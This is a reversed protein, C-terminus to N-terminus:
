FPIIKGREYERHHKRCLWKVELPKSYDEHHAQVELTTGCIECPCKKIHGDRIANRTEYRAKYKEPYRKRATLAYSIQKKRREPTESRKHEYKSIFKRKEEYRKGVDKKTCDKCKNLYGDAMKPHPYFAALEKTEGCKFCRKM